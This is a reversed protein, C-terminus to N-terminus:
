LFRALIRRSHGDVAAISPILYRISHSDIVLVSDPTLRRLDDESNVKFSTRGHDTLVTWHLPDAGTTVHEIRLIRPIFEHHSLEHEITKRLGEPLDRLDRLALVEHGQPGVLSVWHGPDSFPFMRVPIIGTHRHGQADILVLRGFSDHELSFPVAAAVPATLM